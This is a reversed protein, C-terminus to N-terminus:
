GPRHHTRMGYVLICWKLVLYDLFYLKFFCIEKSWLYNATRIVIINGGLTIRFLKFIKLFYHEDSTCHFIVTLVNGTVLFGTPKKSLQYLILIHIIYINYIYAYIYVHTYAAMCPCTHIYTSVYICMNCVHIYTYSHMYAHMYTHMYTYVYISYWHICTSIRYASM